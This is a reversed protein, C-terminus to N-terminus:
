MITCWSKKDALGDEVEIQNDTFLGNTTDKYATLTPTSSQAESKFKNKISTFPTSLMNMLGPNELKMKKTEEPSESRDKRKVGQQDSANEQNNRIARKLYDENMPRIPRRASLNRLSRNKCSELYAEGMSEELEFNLRTTDSGAVARTSSNFDISAYSVELNDGGRPTSKNSEIELIHEPTPPALSNKESDQDNELSKPTKPTPINRTQSRRTKCRTLPSSKGSEHDSDEFQLEPDPEDSILVLPEMEESEGKAKVEQKEKLKEEINGNLSEKHDIEPTLEKVKETAAQESNNAAPEDSKSDEAKAELEKLKIKELEKQQKKLLKKNQPTTSRSRTNHKPIEQPKTIEEKGNTEPVDVLKPSLETEAKPQGNERASNQIDM